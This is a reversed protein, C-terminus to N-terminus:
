PAGSIEDADEFVVEYEEDIHQVKAPAEAGTIKDIREQAQRISNLVGSVNLSRDDLKDLRRWGERIVEEYTAISREKDEARHESRGALEDDILKRATQRTIGLAEGVEDLTDGRARLSVARQAKEAREAKSM